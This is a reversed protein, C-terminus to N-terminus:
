MQARTDEWVTQLEGWDTVDRVCHPAHRDRGWLFVCGALLALVLAYLPDLSDADPNLPAAASLLGSLMGLVGWGARKIVILDRSRILTLLGHTRALLLAGITILVVSSLWCLIAGLISMHIM